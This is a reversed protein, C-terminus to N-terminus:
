YATKKTALRRALDLNRPTGIDIFNEKTLHCFLKDRMYPVLDRSIDFSNPFLHGLEKKWKKTVLFLAGSAINGRSCKDKEYFEILVQEDDTKVIGCSQPDETIFTLLSASCRVPRSKHSDLFENLNDECYNDAHVIFTDEDIFDQTANLTGATGLINKEYFIEIRECFRSELIYKEVEEALYHTNILFKRVGLRSLKELWIELLPKGGIKILCKPCNATFGELRTGFGAALLIAKM